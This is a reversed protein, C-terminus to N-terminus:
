EFLWKKLLINIESQFTLRNDIHVGLYKIEQIEEVLAGDIKLLERQNKRSIKSFVIFETSTRQFLQNIEYCM